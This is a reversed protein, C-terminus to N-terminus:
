RLTRLVPSSGSLKGTKPPQELSLRHRLDWGEIAIFILVNVALAAGAIGFLLAYGGLDALRGGLHPGLFMGLSSVSSYPTMGQGTHLPHFREAAISSLAPYYIGHTLGCLLGVMGLQWLNFVYPILALGVGYLALTAIAVLRRSGTDLRQSIGLRTGIAGM